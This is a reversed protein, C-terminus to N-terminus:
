PLPSAAQRKRHWRVAIVTAAIFLVANGITEGPYPVDVNLTVLTWPIGLAFYALVWVGFAAM